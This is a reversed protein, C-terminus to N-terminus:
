SVIISPGGQRNYSGTPSDMTGGKAWLLFNNTIVWKQNGFPPFTGDSFRLFIQRTGGGFPFPDSQWLCLDTRFVTTNIQEGGVSESYLVNYNELFPDEVKDPVILCKNSGFPQGDLSRVWRDNIPDITFGLGSYSTGSKSLIVSTQEPSFLTVSSPLDAGSITNDFLNSARYMCCGEECCSCSVRRGGEIIKTIISRQGSILQTKITFM